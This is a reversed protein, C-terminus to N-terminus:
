WSRPWGTKGARAAGARRRPTAFVLDLAERRIGEAAFRDRQAPSLAGSTERCGLVAAFLALALLRM